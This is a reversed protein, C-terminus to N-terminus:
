YKAVEKRIFENLNERKVGFYKEVTNYFDEDKSGARLLKFIGEYGNKDYMLKCLLGGITYEYNTVDDIRLYDLTNNLNIEPHNNLYINLKKLHDNLSLELSGGLYTALGENFWPHYTGHFNKQVYLHVVEHPYYYTNNSSAYIIGNTIDTFANIKTPINMYQEFDFGMVNGLKKKDEIDIYRFDVKQGFIDSM